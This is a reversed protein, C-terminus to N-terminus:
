WRWVKFAFKAARVSHGICMRTFWLIGSRVLSVVLVLGIFAAVIVGFFIMSSAAIANFDVPMDPIM